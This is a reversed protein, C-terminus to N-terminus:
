ASSGGPRASAEPPRQHFPVTRWPSHPEALLVRHSRLVETYWDGFAEEDFHLCRGLVYGASFEQWSGYRSRAEQATLELARSMEHSSAYRAGRGWRAIKSARGLDWAAVTRVYGDPLLLEDARFRAEYRLIKGVLDRLTESLQDVDPNEGPETTAGPIHTAINGRITTDVCERWRQPDVRPGENDALFNRTGLVFDWDSTSVDCHLLRNQLDLWDQRHQVGWWQDLRQVEASYGSGHWDLTNWADGNTFCLHAGCALGHLLDADVTGGRRTILRHNTFDPSFCEDHTRRWRAREVNDVPLYLECPTDPNIALVDVGPGIVDALSRLTVFEYVVHPHPRPLVDQTYLRTVTRGDPLETTLPLRKAPSRHTRALPVPQYGGVAAILRLYAPIDERLLHEHLEREVDTPAVWSVDKPILPVIEDHEDEVDATDGTRGASEFPGGLIVRVVSGVPRVM